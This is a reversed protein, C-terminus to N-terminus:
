QTERDDILRAQPVGPVPHTTRHHMIARRAPLSMGRNSDYPYVMDQCLYCWAGARGKNRARGWWWAVTRNDRMAQRWLADDLATDYWQERQAYPIKGWADTSKAVESMWGFYWRVRQLSPKQANEIWRIDAARVAGAIAIMQEHTVGLLERRAKLARGVHETTLTDGM